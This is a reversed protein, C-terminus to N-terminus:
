PFLSKLSQRMPHRGRLLSRQCKNPCNKRRRLTKWTRNRPQTVGSPPPVFATGVVSVQVGTAESSTAIMPVTIYAWSLPSGSDASCTRQRRQRRRIQCRAVFMYMARCASTKVDCLGWRDYGWDIPQPPSLMVAGFVM